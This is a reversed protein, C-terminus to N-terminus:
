DNIRKNVGMRMRYCFEIPLTQSGFFKDVTKHFAALEKEMLSPDKKLIDQIGGQSLAIDFFREANFNETNAFVIERIYCFGGFKLLSDLHKHKPYRFYTARDSLNEEIEAVRRFLVKYALEVDTGCVPPWDCDYAAFVGGPKLLRNIERMTSEPEMWHFSQSCTIIDAIGSCLGTHDSFARIFEINRFHRGNDLARTIMDENPEIGIIRDATGAWILTSLGTGCGIDVVTEPHRNLYRPLIDIVFQPCAPRASDYLDAFGDFRNTNNRADSLQPRNM